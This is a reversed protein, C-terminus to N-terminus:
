LAWVSGHKDNGDDDAAFTVHDGVFSQVTERWRRGRTQYSIIILISIGDDRRRRWRGLRPMRNCCCEDEEDDEEDDEDDGEEDTTMVFSASFLAICITVRDDGVLKFAIVTVM